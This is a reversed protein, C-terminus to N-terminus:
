KSQMEWHHKPKCQPTATEWNKPHQSLIRAQSFSKRWCDVCLRWSAQSSRQFRVLLRGRKLPQKESLGPLGIGIQDEEKVLEPLPGKACSKVPGIGNRDCLCCHWLVSSNSKYTSCHVIPSFHQKWNQFLKKVGQIYYFSLKLVNINKM